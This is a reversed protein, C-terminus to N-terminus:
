IESIKNNSKQKQMNWERHLLGFMYEDLYGKAGLVSQRIVGERVFGLSSFLNISPINNQFVSCAIRNMKLHEFCFEIISQLTERAYGQKRSQIDGICIALDCSKNDRNIDAIQGWGIINNTDKRYIGYDILRDLEISINMVKELYERSEALTEPKDKPYGNVMANIYPDNEWTNLLKLCEIRHQSIILRETEVNFM